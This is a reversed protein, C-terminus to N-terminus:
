NYNYLRPHATITTGSREVILTHRNTNNLPKTASETCLETGDDDALSVFVKGDAYTGIVIAAGSSGTGEYYGGDFGSSVSNKIKGAITWDGDPLNFFSQSSGSVNFAAGATSSCLLSLVILLIYRM